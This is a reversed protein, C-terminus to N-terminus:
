KNSGVRKKGERLKIRTTFVSRKIAFLLMESLM